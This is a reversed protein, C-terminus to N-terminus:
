GAVTLRTLDYGCAYKACYIDTCKQFKRFIELTANLNGYVKWYGVHKYNNGKNKIFGNVDELPYGLFIGIEHPFDCTKLHKKLMHLCAEISYSSYGRQSLFHQIERSSLQSELSNKRYVYILAINNHRKLIYFYIGKSNLLTNNRNLEQQLIEESCYKYSFLNGVKLKALTPSCHKVIMDHSM